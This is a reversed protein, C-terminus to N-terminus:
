GSADFTDSDTEPGSKKSSMRFSPTLKTTEPYKTLYAATAKVRMQCYKSCGKIANQLIGKCTMIDHCDEQTNM